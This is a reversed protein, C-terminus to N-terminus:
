VNMLLAAVAVPNAVVPFRLGDWELIIMQDEDGNDHQLIGGWYVLVEEGDIALTYVLISEEKGDGRHDVEQASVIRWEGVNGQRHTVENVRRIFKQMEDDPDLKISAELPEGVAFFISKGMLSIRSARLMPLNLIPYEEGDHDIYIFTNGLEEDKLTQLTKLLQNVTTRQM